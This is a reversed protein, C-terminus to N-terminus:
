PCSSNAAPGRAPAAPLIQADDLLSRADNILEIAQDLPIARSRRACPRRGPVPQPRRSRRRRRGGARLGARIARALEADDIGYRETFREALGRRPWRGPWPRAPSASSAPPATSPRSRSSSPSRSRARRSRALRAAQLTRSRRRRTPPAAPPWTPASWRGALRRDLRRGPAQRPRGRDSVARGEAGPRDPGPGAAGLLAASGSRPASPTPPAATSSTRCNTACSRRGGRPRRPREPLPEFAPGITPM